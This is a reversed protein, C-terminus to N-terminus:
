TQGRVRSIARRRRHLGYTRSAASGPPIVIEDVLHLPESDDLFDRGQRLERGHAQMYLSMGRFRPVFLIGGEPVNLGVRELSEQRRYRCRSVFGEATLDELSPVMISEPDEGPGFNM